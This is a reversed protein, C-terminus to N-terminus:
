GGTASTAGFTYARVRLGGHALPPSESALRLGTATALTRDTTLLALGYGRLPGRLLNGLAAYLNRLDPGGMRGGYPPNCAVLGGPASPEVASVARVDIRLHAAVGAREANRRTAEVAGADRDSAQIPVPPADLARGLSEGRLAEWRAADFGPWSMFAFSRGAGPPRRMALLAAEIAITGSGCLPDVLPTDGSWGAFALLAAALTERLPAKATEQRWGRRHLPEGSSDVSLTCRDKHIRAVVTVPPAGPMAATAERIAAEVRQAAAGTHYIRSAHCTAAVRLDGVPGLLRGWPVTAANRRLADLSSADIAGVRLLIRTATRLELNARWLLEPSGSFTVGGGTAAVGSAGLARLEAATLPELGPITVAFLHLSM